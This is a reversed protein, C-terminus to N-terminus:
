LYNIIKELIERSRIEDGLAGVRVSIKTSNKAIFKIEIWVKKGDAFESEINATLDDKKDKHIPLDMKKLATKTARYVPDLPRNFQQELSGKAWIAVGAGAAAGVALAICGASYLCGVILIARLSWQYFKQGM